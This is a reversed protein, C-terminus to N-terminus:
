RRRNLIDSYFGHNKKKMAETKSKISKGKVDDHLRIQKDLLHGNGNKLANNKVRYMNVILGYDKNSHIIKCGYLFKGDKEVQRVCRCGLSVDMEEDEYDSLISDVFKINVDKNILSLDESCTFAIGGDSIDEIAIDCNRFDFTFSGDLNVKVRTDERRNIDKSESNFAKTTIKYFYVDNEKITEIEVQRWELRIDTSLFLINYTAKPFVGKPGLTFIKDGATIAKAMIGNDISSLVSIGVPYIKDKTVIELILPSSQQLENLKM